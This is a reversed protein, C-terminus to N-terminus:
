RYMTVMNERYNYAEDRTQGSFNLSCLNFMVKRVGREVGIGLSLTDVVGDKGADLSWFDARNTWKMFISMACNRFKSEPIECFNAYWVVCLCM